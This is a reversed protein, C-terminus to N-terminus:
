KGHTTDGDLTPQPRGIHYGQLYDIGMTRIRTEIAADSVFEAITHMGLKRAFAIIAEVLVHSTPDTVINKILSGDIKLYDINLAFAHTFNSFGSGFDDLAFTCGYQRLHTIFGAVADYDQVKESEVLEIILREGINYTNIQHILHSVFQPNALDITSLNLSFRYPLHEFHQFTKTVMIESLMGYLYSEKAIHIFASAPIVTGDESVMRVLSEYLPPTDPDTSQIIQFYPVIRDSDVARKLRRFWTLNEAYTERSLLSERYASTTKKTEKATKLALDAQVIAESSRAQTTYGIAVGFAIEEGDITYHQRNLHYALRHAFDAHAAPSLNSKGLLGFEDGSLRYLRCDRDLLPFNQLNRSFQILITDGVDHGFFDNIQKFRNIDILILSAIEVRTIDELLQTRNPLGTLMDTHIQRNLTDRSHELARKHQEM